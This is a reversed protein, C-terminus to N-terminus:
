TRIKQQKQQSTYAKELLHRAPKYRERILSKISSPDTYMVLIIAIMIGAVIMVVRIRMKM